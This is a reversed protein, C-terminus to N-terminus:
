RGCRAGAGNYVAILRQGMEDALRVMARRHAAATALVDGAVPEHVSSRCVLPAAARSNAAKATWVVELWVEKAAVSEFRQVDVTMRVADPAPSIRADTANYRQALQEFLAARLEERLPAVWQEQELVRLTDDPMRVVWQPQDVAAPVGVPGLDLPLPPLTTDREVRESPTALLSHFRPAPTSACAALLAATGALWAVLSLRLPLTKM